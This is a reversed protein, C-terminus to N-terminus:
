RGARGTNNRRKPDIFLVDFARLILWIPLLVKLAITGMISLFAGSWADSGAGPAGAGLFLLVGAILAAIFFTLREPWYRDM